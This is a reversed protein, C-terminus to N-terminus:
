QCYQALSWTAPEDEAPQFWSRVLGPGVTGDAAIPRVTFTGQGTTVLERPGTADYFVADLRQWAAGEDIKKAGAKGIAVLAHDEDHALTCLALADDPRAWTMTTEYAVPKGAVEVDRVQWLAECAPSDCAAKPKPTLAAIAPPIPTEKSPRM